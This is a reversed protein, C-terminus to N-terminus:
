DERIYEAYAKRWDNEVWYESGDRLRGILKYQYMERRILEIDSFAIHLRIIENVEKETYKRNAEMQETIKILAMIRLPRKSPYQILKGNSDYYNGLKKNYLQISNEMINGETFDGIAIQHVLRNERRPAPQGQRTM